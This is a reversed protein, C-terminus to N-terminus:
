HQRVALWVRRTKLLIIEDEVPVCSKEPDPKFRLLEYRPTLWLVSPNPFGISPCDLMVKSSVLMETDNM